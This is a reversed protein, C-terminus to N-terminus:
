SAPVLRQVRASLESPSFPKLVYDNAGLDFGRVVDRESGMSSLVIVPVEALKPSSRLHALLEFGDMKPIKVDLIVLDPPNLLAEALASEGDSFHSLAFGDRSLRDAVLTAVVDDNDVHLVSVTRSEEAPVDPSEVIAVDEVGTGGESVAAAARSVSKLYDVLEQTAIPIDEDSADLVARACTSIGPFGYEVSSGDLQQVVRAISVLADEGGKDLTALAM